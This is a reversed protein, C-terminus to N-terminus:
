AFSFHRTRLFNQLREQHQAHEDIHREARKQILSRLRPNIRDLPHCISIEM